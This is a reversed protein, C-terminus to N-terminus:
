TPVELHRAAALTVPGPESAPGKPRPRRAHFWPTSREPAGLARRGSRKRMEEDLPEPQWRALVVRRAVGERHLRAAELADARASAVSSVVVDFSSWTDPGENERVWPDPLARLLADLVAATSRLIPRAGELDLM